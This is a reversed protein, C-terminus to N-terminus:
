DCSANFGFLACIDETLEGLCKEVLGSMPDSGAMLAGPTVAEDVVVGAEAAAAAADTPCGNSHWSWCIRQPSRGRKM